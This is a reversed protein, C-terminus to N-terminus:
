SDAIQQLNDPNGRPMIICFSDGPGSITGEPQPQDADRRLFLRTRRVGLRRLCISLVRRVMPLLRDHSSINMALEHQISILSLTDWTHHENM